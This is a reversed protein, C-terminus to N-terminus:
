LPQAPNGDRDEKENGSVKEEGAQLVPVPGDIEPFEPFSSFGQQDGVQEPDAEGNEPEDGIVAQCM